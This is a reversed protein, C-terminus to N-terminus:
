RILLLESDSESDFQVESQMGEMEEDQRVEAEGEGIKAREHNSSLDLLYRLMYRNDDCLKSLDTRTQTLHKKLARLVVKVSLESRQAMTTPMFQYQQQLYRGHTRLVMELAELHFQIHPSRLFGFENNDTQSETNKEQDGESSSRRLTQDLLSAILHLTRQVYVKPLNKIILRMEDIPTSEYVFQMLRPENLRMAMIFAKLWSGKGNERLRHKRQLQCVAALVTDPTVTMDLDFPDFVLSENLSFEMLGATTAAAWSRNTPNFRVCKCRIQPKVIRTSLDGKKVGPLVRDQELREELDSPEEDDADLLDLPGAETMHKSNLQDLVGDLSKSKSLQYRRLLVQSRVDYLCVWKSHGGALLGNGDATYCISNFHKDDSTNKSTRVDTTKRGGAIDRRGMIEAVRSSHGGAHPDWFTLHGDLTAACIELGDPRFAVALVDSKHQFTEVCKSGVGRSFLDWVRVTRDWSSSVLIVASTSSSATSSIAGEPSFALGSIPGEHGSLIDLLRGTQVSWVYIDFSDQSGACIVEGTPDVALTSFQVPTPTTFTRFNRYRILDFARVTGDASATFLVGQKSGQRGSFEVATVAASHETFTAFCFGNTSNWVKVKGDDGGTAIFQGDPSYDLVNMDYYHGQQKLVYTESQWEWVLLQGLKSSAFALWDGAPSVALADIKNQSISLTHIANFDPMEWLGFVGHSFGVVLIGTAAHFHASHVRAPGHESQQLFYHRAVTTLRKQGLAALSPKTEEANTEKSEEEEGSLSQVGKTQSPEWVFCAGDRSVSYIQSFDKSWWAGVVTDRHGTLTLPAFGDGQTERSYIRVSMDKSATMLWLGDASWELRTITDMHGAFTKYLVFPCFDRFGRHSPTRWLQILNKHMLGVAIWRNCPSFAVASVKSKFKMRFLVIRKPISTLLARGVTLALSFTYPIWTLSSISGQDITLLLLGDPSIAMHAIDCGNEFPFTFSINSDFVILVLFPIEFFM